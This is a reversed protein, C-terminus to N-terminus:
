SMLSFRGQVMGRFVAQVSAITAVRVLAPRTWVKKSQVTDAM